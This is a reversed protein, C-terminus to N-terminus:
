RYLLVVDGKSGAKASMCRVTPYTIARSFRTLNPLRRSLLM